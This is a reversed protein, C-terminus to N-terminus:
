LCRALSLRAGEFVYRIWPIYQASGCPWTELRVRISAHQAAGLFYDITSAPQLRGPHETTKRMPRLYSCRFKPLQLGSYIHRGYAPFNQRCVTLPIGVWAPKYPHKAHTLIVPTRSFFKALAKSRPHITHWTVRCTGRYGFKTNYCVSCYTYAVGVIDWALEIDEQSLNV